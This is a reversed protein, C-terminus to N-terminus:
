MMAFVVHISKFFILSGAGIALTRVIMRVMFTEFTEQTKGRKTVRYKCGSKLTVEAHEWMGLKERYIRRYWRISQEDCRRTGTTM